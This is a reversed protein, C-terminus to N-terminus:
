GSKLFLEVIPQMQKPWHFRIYTSSELLSSILVVSFKEFIKLEYYILIYTKNVNIWSQNIFKLRNSLGIPDLDVQNAAKHPRRPHLLM